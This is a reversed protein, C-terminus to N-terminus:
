TTYHMVSSTVNRTAWPSIPVSTKVAFTSMTALDAKEVLGRLDPNGAGMLELVRARAEANGASEPPAAFGLEDRHASFGWMVYGEEHGGDRFEGRNSGLQAKGFQGRQNGHALVVRKSGEPM